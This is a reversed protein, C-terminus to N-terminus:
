RLSLAVYLDDGIAISTLASTATAAPINIVGNPGASVIRVDKLMASPDVYQVVLRRNWGDILVPGGFKVIDGTSGAVYPGNWGIRINPNFQVSKNGTVPNSFLWQIEFRQAETAVSAMGDLTVHKTDRWYELTAKRTEALSARTVSEAASALNDSCLPIAIGSLAVLICLVVVLEVLTLANRNKM